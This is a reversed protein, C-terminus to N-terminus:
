HVTKQKLRRQLPVPVRQGARRGAVRDRLLLRRREGRGRLLRQLTGRLRLRQQLGLGLHAPAQSPLRM